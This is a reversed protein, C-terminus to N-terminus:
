KAVDIKNLTHNLMVRRATNFMEELDRTDKNGFYKFAAHFDRYEPGAFALLVSYSEDSHVVVTCSYTSNNKHVTKYIEKYNMNKTKFGFVDFSSIINESLVSM